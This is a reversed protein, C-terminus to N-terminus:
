KNSNLIEGIEFFSSFIYDYRDVTGFGYAAFGFPVAALKAANCDGQTDGIYVSATLGNRVIVKKINEGKSLTDPDEYAFDCFYKGLKHYSLFANMYSEQCNSVIYLKYHKSLERLTEEVGDYLKGGHQSLEKVCEVTARDFFDASLKEDMDPFLKKMLDIRNLGMVSKMEELDPLHVGFEAAVTRWAKTISDTSDWLTGDLDFGISDIM